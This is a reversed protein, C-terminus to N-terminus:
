HHRLTQLKSVPNQCWRSELLTQPQNRLQHKLKARYCDPQKIQGPQPSTQKFFIFSSPGLQSLRTPVLSGPQYAYGQVVDGAVALQTALAFRGLEILQDKQFNIYDITQKAQKQDANLGLLGLPASTM